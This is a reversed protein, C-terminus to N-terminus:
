DRHRDDASEGKVTGLSTTAVTGHTAHVPEHELAMRVTPARTATELAGGLPARASAAGAGQAMALFLVGSIVATGTWGAARPATRLMAKMDRERAQPLARQEEITLIM